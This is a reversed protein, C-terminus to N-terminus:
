KRGVPAIYIVFLEEGDLGLARNTMNDDYAAVACTGAGISEAALYLNQCVHGADLFLFRYGRAGYRWTMRKTVAVWFFTVASTKLMKQNWAADVLQDALDPSSDLKLLKHDLALFRFLGSELGDVNNILLLTEFAHKAGGSPVTRFTAQEDKMGQVGQTCWLLYSLEELSLPDNSYQRLSRRQDILQRMRNDPPIFHAPSPLEIVPKTRDYELELPPREIGKEQDSKDRYEYKTKELFEQGINKM